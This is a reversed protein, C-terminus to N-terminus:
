ITELEEIACDKLLEAVNFLPSRFQRRFKRM